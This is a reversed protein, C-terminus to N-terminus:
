CSCGQGPGTADSPKWDLVKLQVFTQGEFERVQPVFALDFPAEPVPMEPCGWCLAPLTASGDTVWMKLHQLEHGLRRPPRQHRLRRAALQVPPNAQGAPELRALERIRELTLEDLRVEADLRLAPRFAEPALTQRAIRNLQERFAKLNEPPLSVGAAMAHGGHRTLLDSCSRLAGVLDFGEISRGSGRWEAGDAGLIIAPRHFERLVRSAVIGVVGLHWSAQGEVLVYDKAPDFRARVEDIVQAAIKREIAQRERNQADLALALAAAEEFDTALLLQLSQLANELRGSANLRPGLLFGVEFVGIRREIRAVDVLAAVGPRRLSNLHELGASVMIRNEGTLPV